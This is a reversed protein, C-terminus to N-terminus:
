PWCPPRKEFFAGIGEFCQKSLITDGAEDREVALATELPMAGTEGIIKKVAEIARPSNEIITGAYTLVHDMFGQDPFIHQVLGMQKAENTDIKRCSFILDKANGPGILRSLRVTGGLDPILGLRTEQFCLAAKQGAVRIDCALALELGGSYADANLAAITPIPLSALNSLIGHVFLFNRTIKEKNNENIAKFINQVFPDQLSVDVGASFMEDGKGTIVLSKIEGASRVSDIITSMQEWCTYNIANKKLPRNIEVIGIAGQKRFGIEPDHSSMTEEM